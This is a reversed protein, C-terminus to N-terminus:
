ADGRGRIVAQYLARRSVDHRAAVTRVADSRSAGGAEEADVEDLLIGPDTKEPEGGAVVLTLEGLARQGAPWRQTAEILTGRWIEEHMKTLERAVAIRRDDGLADALDRLDDGIRSPASFLVITRAEAAFEAIRRRREGRKRPLFGEFVFRDSPLGSVALAASVASPGPVVTVAADASLAIRVASLGPDSVTPMGADSVLAVTEGSALRERLESSRQAENGAFYSRMPRDIGLHRLLTATRRTDEAFVVDAESLVRALRQTVDGLNGIPTGCLVLRGAMPALKPVPWVSALRRGLWVLQTGM